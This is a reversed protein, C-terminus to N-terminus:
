FKFRKLHSSLEKVTSQLLEGKRDVDELNAATSNAVDSVKIINEEIELAVASQEETAASIQTTLNSVEAIDASIKALSQKVENVSILSSNAVNGGVQIVQIAESVNNHLHEVISQIKKTSQQSDGALSRVEDAVVAFGRGQEGARAAEIAANLALLNTKESIGTIVDLMTGISKSDEGLREIVSQALKMKDVLEVITASMQNSNANSVKLSEVVSVTSSAAHTTYQAVEKSSVAMESVASAAQETERVQVTMQEKTSHASQQVQIATQNVTEISASVSRITHQTKEIFQNIYSATTGIEDARADDLRQTLDGDGIALNKAMISMADLPNLVWFKISFVLFLLLILFIVGSTYVTLEITEISRTQQQSQQSSALKAKDMLGDVKSSIAEAAADFEAMVKNGGEPGFEIYANAMKKGVNFYNELTPLIGRYTSANEPNLQTLQNLLDKALVYNETAVDIGDNLGDLGRTASIDSFWQQIQIVAIKLEYNKYVTPEIHERIEIDAHHIKNSQNSMVISQSFLGLALLCLSVLMKGKITM